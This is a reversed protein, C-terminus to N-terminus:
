CMEFLEHDFSFMLTFAFERSASTERRHVSAAQHRREVVQQM